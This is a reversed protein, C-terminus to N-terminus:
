GVHQQGAAIVASAVSVFVRGPPEPVMEMTAAVVTGDARASIVDGLIGVPMMGGPSSALDIAYGGQVTEM